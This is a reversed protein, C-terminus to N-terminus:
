SVQKEWLFKLIAYMPRRYTFKAEFTAQGTVEVSVFVNLLCPVLQNIHPHSSFLSERNLMPFYPSGTEYGRVDRIPLLAELCEALKARFHPNKMRKPSGMFVLIFTLIDNLGSGGIDLSKM